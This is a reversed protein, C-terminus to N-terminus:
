SPSVYRVLSGPCERNGRRKAPGLAPADRLWLRARTRSRPYTPTTVPITQQGKWDQPQQMPVCVVYVVVCVLEILLVTVYVSPLPREVVCV